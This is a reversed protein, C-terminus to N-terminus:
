PMSSCRTSTRTTRTRRPVRSCRLTACAIPPTMPLPPSAVAPATLATGTGSGFRSIIVADFGNLFGPTELQATTVLTFSSAGFAATLSFPIGNGGGGPTTNGDLWVALVPAASGLSPLSLLLLLALASAGIIRLRAM